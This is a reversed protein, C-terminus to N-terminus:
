PMKTSIDHLLEPQKLVAPVPSNNNARGVVLTARDLLTAKKADADYNWHMVTLTWPIMGNTVAIGDEGVMPGVRKLMVVSYIDDDEAVCGLLTRSDYFDHMNTLGVNVAKEVDPGAEVNPWAVHIGDAAEVAFVIRDPHDTPVTWVQKGDVQSSPLLTMDPKGFVVPPNKPTFGAQSLDIQAVGPPAASADFRIDAPYVLDDIKQGDDGTMKAMLPIKQTGDDNEVYLMTTLLHGTVTKGDALAIEASLYRVPYVDGTEAQAAQGPNPFYFGKRMEEKEVKIRMEKVEALSLSVATTDSTYIRLSKGPTLFLGGTVTHGDSFTVTGPRGDARLSACSALAMCVCLFVLRKMDFEASAPIAM